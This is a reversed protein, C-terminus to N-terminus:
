GRYVGDGAAISRLLLGATISQNVACRAFPQGNDSEIEFARTYCDGACHWYCFCERCASRREALGTLFKNRREADIDITGQGADWSGFTSRSALAHEQDTIEYCAVIEGRPNVTLAGGLPATCFTSTLLWPRAGSYYMFRGAARAVDYAALFAEAFEEAQEAEPAQHGGRESEFSPEVQINQCGTERCFFAVDEPLAAFREPISTVRINYTFKAQDLFRITRMVAEFSGKGGAFPRQADQTAQAGDMSITLGDLNAIVWECRTQNWVGNSVMNLQAPLEKGRAYDAAAQLTEWALSPEGGGHFTVEFFPQGLEQANSCVQDIVACASELSLDLDDKEGGSAYCYICRLNCRGTMLLAASTPRFAAQPDPPPPAPPDPLAFGISRFFAQVETPGPPYVGPPLVKFQLALDAMARNGIFALRRLPRYIIFKDQVPILHIEM